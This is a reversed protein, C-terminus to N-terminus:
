VLEKVIGELQVKTGMVILQDGREIIEDGSPNIKSIGNYKNIALVTAGGTKKRSLYTGIREGVMASGKEVNIEEIQLEGHKGDMIVDMFDVVAPRLAIGAMHYGGIRYPLSVRDAGAKELKQVNEEESARAVVFINPNLSKATLTLFLNDTDSGLAAILTKAKQIGAKILVEEKIPDGEINVLGEAKANQAERNDRDIVVFEVNESKLEEAVQRGVRGYGCVIYHEEMKEIEKIMKKKRRAELYQGGFIYEAGGKIIYALIFYSGVVLFITLIQEIIPEDVAHKFHSLLIILTAFFAHWLDYGLSFFGMTGFFTLAALTLALRRLVKPSM